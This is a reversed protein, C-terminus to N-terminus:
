DQGELDKLVHMLSRSNSQATQGADPPTYAVALEQAYAPAQALCAFLLVRKTWSYYVPNEM